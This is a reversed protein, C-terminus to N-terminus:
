ISFPHEDKFNSINDGCQDQQEDLDGYRKPANMRKYTTKKPSTKTTNSRYVKRVLKRENEESLIAKVTNSKAKPISNKCSASRVSAKFM